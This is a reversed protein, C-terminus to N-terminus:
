ENVQWGVVWADAGDRLGHAWDIRLVGSRGPVRLRLGAGTDFQFAHGTAFTPRRGAVATDAFVAGGIRVLRPRNTWHQLEATAHVLSRGFVSGDIRGDHLLAHARLLPGRGRGEGAGSWLALPADNSVTSIGGRILTVLPGPDLRSRYGADVSAASFGPAAGFGLWTAVSAQTAVRDSLLRHDITGTFHATRDVTGDVRTWTDIGISAEARLSATLWSSLAAEGLLHKERVLTPADPGYAQSEWALNVRWVGRPGAVLPAAFQMSVKPRNEWWGWAASWTEGQGTRGPVTVGVEREIAAQGGAAAWQVPNRPLTAREVVAVDVVAFGDDGPRLSMRTSAVDPLSELRRRGLRFAQPTLLADVPLDMAEAVLAYRTRSLGTIHVSDLTPKGDVNWARLAGDFDNLMFRSSGLVDAAYRDGPARALAQQALTAADAWRRQAFRVGALERLPGAEDPCQAAVAGLAADARGIGQASIEDLAADLLDDCHTRPREDGGPPKSASGGASAAERGSGPRDQEPTVRLTWFGTPEWARQLKDFSLPRSPGWTPDHVFVVGAQEDIGVAVIYHYRQPRDEILLMPPRGAALERRLTDISGDIRVASWHRERIAQILATDAIGGAARDVLPEFQQVTAHADGWFRFLMATAAGGCLAETQPLYPVDLTLDHPAPQASATLPALLLALFLATM